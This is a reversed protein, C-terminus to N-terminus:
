AADRLSQIIHMAAVPPVANGAMHVTLRHNDPRRIDRPFSMALLNEEATLMRRCQWRGHRTCGWDLFEPVNEVLAVAPRHFEVASVVAWATSRSADHLLGALAHEPPVIRSVLVSHQAVSYFSSTHGTFRCLNSLAHAITKIGFHYEEPKTLDYYMGAHTLITPNM